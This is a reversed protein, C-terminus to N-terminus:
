ILKNAWQLTQRDLLLVNFIKRYNISYGYLKWTMKMCIAKSNPSCKSITLFYHSMSTLKRKLILFSAKGISGTNGSLEISDKGYIASKIIIMLRSQPSTIAIVVILKKWSRNRTKWLSTMSSKHMKLVFLVKSNLHSLAPELLCIGCRNNLSTLAPTIKLSVTLSPRGNWWNSIEKM